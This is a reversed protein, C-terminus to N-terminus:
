YTYICTNVSTNKNSSTHAPLEILPKPSKVSQVNCRGTPEDTWSSRTSFHLRAYMISCNYNQIHARMHHTLFHFLARNEQECMQLLKTLWRASKELVGTLLNDVFCQEVPKIKQILCSDLNINSINEQCRPFIKKVSM